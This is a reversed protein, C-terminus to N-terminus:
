YQFAFCSRPLRILPTRSLPQPSRDLRNYVSFISLKKRIEGCGRSLLDALRYGALIMRRDAIRRTDVPLVPTATIM